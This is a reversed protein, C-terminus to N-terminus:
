AVRTRAACRPKVQYWDIVAFRLRAVQRLLLAFGFIAVSLLPITVLDQKFGYAVGPGLIGILLLQWFLSWNCIRSALSAYTGLLYCSIGGVLYDMVSIPLQASMLQLTSAILVIVLSTLVLNLMVHHELHRWHERRSGGQRLWVLRARAALEGNGMSSIIAMALSYVLFLAPYSMPSTRNYESGIIYLLVVFILPGVVVLYLVYSLRSGMSDPYGLLMTGLASRVGKSRGGQLMGPLRGTLGTGDWLFQTNGLPAFMPAFSTRTALTRLGVAWGCLCLLLAALTVAPDNFATALYNSFRALVAIVVLPGLSFLLLAHRSPLVLQLAGSYLSAGIFMHLGFLPGLATPWYLAAALPMFVALALTLALLAVGAHLLLGPAQELRRSAILKRFAVGSCFYPLVLALFFGYIALRFAVSRGFLVNCLPAALILVAGLAAVWGQPPTWTLLYRLLPLLPLLKM